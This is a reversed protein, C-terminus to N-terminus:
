ATEEKSQNDLASSEIPAGSVVSAGEPLPYAGKQTTGSTKTATTKKVEKKTTAM